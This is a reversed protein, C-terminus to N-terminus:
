KSLSLRSNYWPLSLFHVRWGSRQWHPRERPPIAAGHAASHPRLEAWQRRGGKARACVFACVGGGGTGVAGM